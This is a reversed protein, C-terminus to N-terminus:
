LREYHDPLQHVDRIKLNDLFQSAKTLTIQKANLSDLVASVFSNGFVHKPERHRYIRSGRGGPKIPQENKWRRYSRYTTEQLRGGDLLRRLIVETSVGWTKRYVSLWDEFDAVQSPRTSDDIQGLFSDPVLFKGAFANADREKRDNSYMDTEEDIFSSKHLLLHGLEHALTFTQRVEANQKKVFILPCRSDYISFGLISDEKPIQWNGAYGNSRFVLIGAREIAYRYSEFDNAENLQLWERVITATDLPHNEIEPTDFQV